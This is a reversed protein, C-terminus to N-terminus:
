AHSLQSFRGDVACRRERERSGAQNEHGPHEKAEDRAVALEEM